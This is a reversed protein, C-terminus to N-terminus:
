NAIADDVLRTEIDSILTGQPSQPKAAAALALRSRPDLGFQKRQAAVRQALAHIAAMAFRGKPSSIFSLLKKGTPFARHLDNLQAQDVCLNALGDVDCTNLVMSSKGVIEGVLSEWLKKAAANLYQPCEPVGLRYDFRLDSVRHRPYKLMHKPKPHPPM